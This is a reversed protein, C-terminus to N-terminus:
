RDTIHLEKKLASQLVASFNLGAAEAEENLWSPITLNKRVARLDHKRRYEQFNVDVMTVIADREAKVDEIHSPSPISQNNDQMYCGCMGIADRAMEMAEAISAGQTNINFDPVFVVYLNSDREILIPYANKM